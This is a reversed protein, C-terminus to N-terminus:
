LLSQGGIHKPFQDLAHGLAPPQDDGAVVAVGRAAQEVVDAVAVLHGPEFGIEATHPKRMARARRMM